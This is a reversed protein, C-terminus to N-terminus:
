DRPSFRGPAHAFCGRASALDVEGPDVNLVKIILRWRQMLRATRRWVRGEVFHALAHAKRDGELRLALDSPPTLTLSDDHRDGKAVATARLAKAPLDRTPSRAMVSELPLSFAGAFFFARPDRFRSWNQQPIM